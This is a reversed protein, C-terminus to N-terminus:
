IGPQISTVSFGSCAQKTLPTELYTTLSPPIAELNTSIISCSGPPLIGPEPFGMAAHASEGPYLTVTVPPFASNHVASIGLQHNNSDVLTITPYGSLTCTHQSQNTFVADVYITGATGSSPGIALDLDSAQCNTSVYPIGLPTNKPTPKQVYYFKWIAAAVIIGVIILVVLSILISKNPVPM